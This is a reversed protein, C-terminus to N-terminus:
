GRRGASQRSDSQWKDKREEPHLYVIQNIILLLIFVHNDPCSFRPSFYEEYGNYRSHDSGAQEHCAARCDTKDTRSTDNKGQKAKEYAEDDIHSVDYRNLIIVNELGNLQLNEKLDQLVNQAEVDFGSKKQVYIRRVM